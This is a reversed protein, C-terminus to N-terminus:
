GLRVLYMGAFLLEAGDSRYFGIDPVEFGRGSNGTPDFALARWTGVGGGAAGAVITTGGSGDPNHTALGSEWGFYMVSGDFAGDRYGWGSGQAGAVQDVSAGLTGTMDFAHIQHNGTTNRASSWMTQGVAPMAIAAVALVILTKRM